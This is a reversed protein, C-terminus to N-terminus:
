KLKEAVVKCRKKYFAIGYAWIDNRGENRLYEDYRREHIQEIAERCKNELSSLTGAKKLEIVIGADLNDTKILIDARGDGGERNSVVGWSANGALMGLLFNHYTNEPYTKRIDYVSITNSLIRTLQDEIEKANGEALAKWFTRLGDADQLVTKQFLERIQHEYVERIEENPIKLKYVGRQPKEALTLYGTTFLVSWLNDISNDIEEYTLDLRIAKEVTKGEFLQEIEDKTTQDAKDIFRKVLDNGSTNSWYSQPEAGPEMCLRDVHNIVDWPCYIDAEGFRYGDYWEKIEALHEELHYDELFKKVEDETFGFQEDFRVDTISLVKFNNLGTFISEKSVRLCGTLVAFQLFDNTKLAQGFLGRILAVMEKYYGHQFAKDLPVDYEDILLITKQGFHKTLLQALTQISSILIEEDMSFRGNQLKILARYRSKENETLKESDSLFDFREAEVGILEKLRYVAKEFTLGDVNKLSLFVVPYKGLYEECLKHNQSIYLGDFLTKDTGIEFFYRLMSMNLTKGFRRPRTFLNVKGWQELLQEILRTKDIYYFGAERIEQFSEIGVPLKLKEAMRVCAGKWSSHYHFISELEQLVESIEHLKIKGDPVPFLM